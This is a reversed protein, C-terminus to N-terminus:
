FVSLHKLDLINIMMLSVFDYMFHCLILIKINSYIKYFLAFVIGIFCPIVVQGITGYASHLIGFLVASVVIGAYRNKYIKEVRPQIYGRMLLEEVVGATLCTFIILGYNNKFIESLQVLRSSMSEHIFFRILFNLFAGGVACILYLSFVKKLYFFFSYAIDQWLLFPQKEILFSYLIVSLLVIWLIIRSYVFTATPTATGESIFHIAPFVYLMVIGLLIFTLLIGLAYRGNLSM